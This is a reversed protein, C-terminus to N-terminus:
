DQQYTLLHYTNLQEIRTKLVHGDPWQVSVDVSNKNHGLGFLLRLDSQSMFSGGSIVEKRQHISGSKVTVVAGIASRNSKPGVLKIGLWQNTNGDTNEYVTLRDNINNVAFDIKGDNNWDAVALGRSSRNQDLVFAKKHPQELLQNAAKNIFLQNAQHYHQRVDLEHIFDHIHGNAVLLDEHGNNDVDMLALGWGMPMLSSRALGLRTTTDVFYKAKHNLYVTNTELSFHSVVLDQYGDTNVDGLAIGMGAETKGSQNIASGSLLGNDVFYGKGNNVYYRNASGDNAVYIDTDGDQDFDSFVVGFGRDKHQRHIGREAAMEIFQANGDNIYLGDNEGAYAKPNCYGKIGSNQCSKNGNFDYKVYRSIYLDLDGDQDIDAFACSTSWLNAAKDDLEHAVFKNGGNNIYLIDPGFATLLFDTLGDQNIDASCVGMTRRNDLVRAQPLVSDTVDKFGKGTNKFLKHQSGIGNIVLLDMLNDHDYDLWALGSGATETFQFAGNRGDEHMFHVGLETAKEHFNASHAHNMNMGIMSSLCLFFCTLKIM